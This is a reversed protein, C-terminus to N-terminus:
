AVTDQLANRVLKANYENRVGNVIQLSAEYQEEGKIKAMNNIYGCLLSYKNCLKVRFERIRLFENLLVSDSNKTCANLFSQHNERLRDVFFQLGLNQVVPKYTPNSLDALLKDVLMNERDISYGPLSGYRDLLIAICTADATAGSGSSFRACDVATRLANISITRERDKRSFDSSLLSGTEKQIIRVFEEANLLINAVLYSLNTDTLISTGLARIRNVQATVFSYFDINSLFYGPSTFLNTDNM